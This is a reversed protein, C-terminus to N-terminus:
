KKSQLSNWIGKLTTLLISSKIFKVAVSNNLIKFNEEFGIYKKM